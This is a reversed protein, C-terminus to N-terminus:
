EDEFANGCHPCHSSFPPLKHLYCDCHPCRWWAICLITYAILATIVIGLGLSSEEFFFVVVAFAAVVLVALIRLINRKVSFKM